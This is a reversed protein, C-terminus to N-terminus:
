RKGTSFVSFLMLVLGLIAGGACLSAWRQLRAQLRRNAYAPHEEWQLEMDALFTWVQALQVPGVNDLEDSTEITFDLETPLSRAKVFQAGAAISGALTLVLGLVFLWRLTLNSGGADAAPEALTARDAPPLAQIERLTLPANSAGCNPCEASSGARTTETEFERSCNACARLYKQAM